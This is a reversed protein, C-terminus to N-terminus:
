SIVVFVLVQALCSVSMLWVNYRRIIYNLNNLKRMDYKNIMNRPLQIKGHKTLNQFEKPKLVRKGQIIQYM